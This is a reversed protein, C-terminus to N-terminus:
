TQCHESPNSQELSIDETSSTEIFKDIFKRYFSDFVHFFRKHARLGRHGKCLKGCLCRVYNDNNNNNESQMRGDYDTLIGKATSVNNEGDVNALLRKRNEIYFDNKVYNGHNCVEQLPQQQLKKPCKRSYKSLTKFTKERFDCKEEISDCSSIWIFILLIRTFLVVNKM